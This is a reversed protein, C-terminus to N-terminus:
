FQCGYPIRHQALLPKEIKKGNQCGLLLSCTSLSKSKTMTFLPVYNFLFDTGSLSPMTINKCIKIHAPAPVPPSPQPGKPRWVCNPYQSDMQSRALTKSQHHLHSDQAPFGSISNMNPQVLKLKRRSEQGHHSVSAGKQEAGLLHSRPSPRTHGTNVAETM